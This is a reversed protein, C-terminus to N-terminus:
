LTALIWLPLATHFSSFYRGLHMLTRKCYWGLDNWVRFLESKMLHMAVKFIWWLKVRFNMKVLIFSWIDLVLPSQEFISKSLFGHYTKGGIQVLEMFDFGFTFVEFVAFKVAFIDCPWLYCLLWLLLVISTSIWCNLSSFLNFGHCFFVTGAQYHILNM